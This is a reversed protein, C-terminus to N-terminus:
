RLVDQKEKAKELRRAEDYIRLTKKVEKLAEIITKSTFPLNGM